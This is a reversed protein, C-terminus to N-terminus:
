RGLSLSGACPVCCNCGRRGRRTRQLAHNPRRRSHVILGDALGAGASEGAASGLARATARREAFFGPSGTRLTTRVAVEGEGLRTAIPALRQAFARTRSVRGSSGAVQSALLRM